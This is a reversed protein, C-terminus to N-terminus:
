LEEIFEENYSPYWGEIFEEIFERYIAYNHEKDQNLKHLRFFSKIGAVTKSRAIIETEYEGDEGMSWRHLYYPKENVEDVRAQYKPKLNRILQTASM